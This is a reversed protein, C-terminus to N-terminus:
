CFEPSPTRRGDTGGRRRDRGFNRLAGHAIQRRAIEPCKHAKAHPRLQKGSQKVANAMRALNAELLDLDLLLAPTPIQNKTLVSKIIIIGHQM